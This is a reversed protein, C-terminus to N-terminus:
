VQGTIELEHSQGIFLQATGPNVRPAVYVKAAIVGRRAETSGLPVWGKGANYSLLNLPGPLNEVSKRWLSGAALDLTLNGAAVSSVTFNIGKGRLGNAFRLLNSGGESTNFGAGTIELKATNQYIKKEISPIIVVGSAHGVDAQVEAVLLGGMSPPAVRVPGAGTNIRKLYLPGPEARWTKGPQLVLTVRDSLKNAVMYDTGLVLPPDFTLKVSKQNLHKGTIILRKTETQFIVTNNKLVMPAPIVTALVVDEAIKVAGGQKLSKLFITSQGEYIDAWKKEPAKTLTIQSSNINLTYDKGFRFERVSDDTMVDL